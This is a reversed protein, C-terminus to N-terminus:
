EDVVAEESEPESIVLPALESTLIALKERWIDEPLSALSFDDAVLAEKFGGVDVRDKM